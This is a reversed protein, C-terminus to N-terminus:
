RYPLLTPPGPDFNEPSLLQEGSVLLYNVRSYAPLNPYFGLRIQLTNFVLNDNRIRIGLGIGSLVEGNERFRTTGFLYGLNTYVFFAFRFGYLDAPSFLVSELSISLRRTGGLSDNNFGYFGNERSYSLYENTNRNFGMAYDVKVFNRMSYKGPHLLNSVFNIRFLLLGQETTDQHFFTSFGISSYFYGVNKITQGASLIVSTYYRNNFENIEKGLTFNILGGSPIDETHGYSYILNTKHYKQSSIAASGLFIKYRQLYHYSDPLIFPRDFVNNNTYRIGLIVRTVSEKNIMFSRSLWYDQLNYKLPEPEPLSNDLDVSTFMEKISIGGAYKTTSSILKRELSFGYTKNGLGDYYFLNLNVFSRAINDVNYKIGFGPSNPLNSDYPVDLRFEHGLGLINKEFLSLYGKNISIYEYNAGLSYVDKTLVIIDVDEDSVPIVIIRSDDIYPLQRLIRENDSIILPSLTDGISFLLNKRIIFENTNLHTKNLINDVKNPDTSFTSNINSGFVNLRHIDIRRIKKGAYRYFDLESSERIHKSSALGDPAFVFDYLKKTILYRSAKLEISDFLVSTRENIIIKAPIITGRIIPSTNETFILNGGPSYTIKHPKFFLSSDNLTQKQPYLSNNCFLFALLFLPGASRRYKLWLHYM